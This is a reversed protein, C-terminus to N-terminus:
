PLTVREQCRHWGGGKIQVAVDVGCSRPLRACMMASRALRIGPPLLGEWEDLTCTMSSGGEQAEGALCM